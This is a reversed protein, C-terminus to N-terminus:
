NHQRSGMSRGLWAPRHVGGEVDVAKGVAEVKPPLHVLHGVGRQAQHAVSTSRHQHHDCSSSSPAGAEAQQGVATRSGAPQVTVDLTFSQSQESERDM